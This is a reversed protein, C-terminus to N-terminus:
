AFVRQHADHAVLTAILAGLFLLSDPALWQWLGVCVGAWLAGYALSLVLKM